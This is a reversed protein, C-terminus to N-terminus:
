SCYSRFSSISAGDTPLQGGHWRAPIPPGSSGWERPLVMALFVPAWIELARFCALWSRYDPALPRLAEQVNSLSAQPPSVTSFHGPSLGAALPRRPAFTTATDYRSRAHQSTLCDMMSISSTKEMNRAQRPLVLQNSQFNDAFEQRNCPFIVSNVQCTSDNTRQQVAQIPKRDSVRSHSPFPWIEGGVSCVTIDMLIVM